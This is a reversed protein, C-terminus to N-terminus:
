FLKAALVRSLSFFQAEPTVEEGLLNLRKGRSRKQKEV